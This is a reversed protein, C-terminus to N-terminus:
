VVIPLSIKDSCQLYRSIRHESAGFLWLVILRAKHNRPISPYPCHHMLADENIPWHIDGSRWIEQLSTSFRRRRYRSRM